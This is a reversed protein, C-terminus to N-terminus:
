QEAFPPRQSSGTFEDDGHLIDTGHGGILSSVLVSDKFDAASEICQLRKLFISEVGSYGCSHHVRLGRVPPQVVMLSIRAQCGLLRHEDLRCQFREPRLQLSKAVRRLGRGCIYPM